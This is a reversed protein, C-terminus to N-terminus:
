EEEEGLLVHVPVQLRNDKVFNCWHCDPKGCGTHFEHRQIRAWADTIQRTVVEIDGPSIVVKETRYEGGVPEVFDFEASIAEWDQSRDNDLLIKYFVAQRWYDGGLPEKETPPKLKALAYDYRGTKYDVVNVQRGSFEVKDLKGNLPVGALEVRRISMEVKVVKNWRHLYHDYYPPLIRKGYEMRRTFQERTFSERNRRMHWSFDNLLEEQGPFVGDAEKMKEFLRQLAFHIASGFSMADSKAGPVRILNQYYFKLPCQLFNNLHTVSLSYKKLVQTIHREELLAIRPPPGAIFPLALYETMTERDLSQPEAECGTGALLEGIFHSEAQKKGTEDMEAYSIRLDTKARTMAVYFLRRAEEQPDAEFARSVLNDPMAFHFRGQSKNENWAAALCGILFVHRYESGKSGHATVLTVGEETGSIKELPLTIGERAMLDIIDVLRQLTLDPQKKTEEKIFDFLTTVVEMLWAKEPSRMVVALVGAERIVAEFLQQLTLNRSQRILDELVVSAQKLTHAVDDGFLDPAPRGPQEAIARRISYRERREKRDSYNKEAVAVAIRAAEAPPVGFFDYHLIEFLLDDGSYPAEQEAALYRLVQIINRVFPLTFLDVSRKMQLPIGKKQLYVSLTEAQRHSRYIVAIETPPVGQALLATIAEAVACEEQARSPYRIIQPKAAAEPGRASAAVLTKDMAPDDRVIRERNHDILVKAMDLIPQTSRYNDTLMIKLLRDGYHRAFDRINEVNADQFSFISQDDDGVVFVNPTDWYSILHHLLRSQSGSTDQFEDVLFYQYREQYDLLLQPHQEFADLVWLIMDDYTYRAAERMMEQYRPYLRVGGRLKEMRETERAIQATKPDGPQFEKYKRKYFFGEKTPLERLYADIREELFDPTWAEKKMLRFLNKLRATDAYVDGGYRKLPNDGGIGDVLARFLEVEELESVPELNLKGFYSINDQIVENCFSHFTHIAIRYADPGIFRFLRNRMEVRGTDTFTLCLINHPATDTQRLINGIRAALIQTKGTGPGAIVLVPGEIHEVAQRQRPNLRELEKDFRLHLQEQMPNMMM